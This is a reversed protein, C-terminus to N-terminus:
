YILMKPDIIPLFANHLFTGKFTSFMVGRTTSISIINLTEVLKPPMNIRGDVEIKIAEEFNFIEYVCSVSITGIILSQDDNKIQVNVIVFVLKKTVDAKSEINLNFNFNTIPNKADPPLIISNNLLEIAKIQMEINVEKQEINNM